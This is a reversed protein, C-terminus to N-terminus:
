RKILRVSRALLERKTRFLLIVCLYVFYTLVVLAAMRALDVGQWNYQAAKLAAAAVVIAAAHPIALKVLDRCTIPGRRGVSVWVLPLLVVYNMVAYSAAVGVAGWPLGIIFSAVTAVASYAGLKFFDSGRGQSLFLWGATSTMVQHLAAVGLWQFIPAAPIWRTGFLLEFLQAACVIAFLIGPQTAIMILSVAEMYTSRYSTQQAQIRSLLPVLVKGIPGHVQTIPFLLLRYARDYLGLQDGGQFRGILINDCNRSLYNVINFGSVHSGFSLMQATNTDFHPVGPRYRTSLWMGVGTVITASVASAYLAWYSRWLLAGVVGVVLAITASAVDIIALKDFHSERNLIAAPVAQPGSILVLASFAVALLEVKPEAYFRAILPAGAGLLLAFVVSAAISIWFLSNVQGPSITDRQIIAQSIGLDKVLAILATATGVMALIGFDSPTLLRTTVVTLILGTIVRWAQATGTIAINKAARSKSNRDM